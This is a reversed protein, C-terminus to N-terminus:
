NNKYPNKHPKLYLELTTGAGYNELIQNITSDDDLEDTKTAMVHSIPGFYWGTSPVCAILKQQAIPVGEQQELYKKIDLIATNDGYGIEFSNSSKMTNIIITKQKEEMAQVMCFSFCIAVIPLLM